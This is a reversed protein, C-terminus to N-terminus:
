QAVMALQHYQLALHLNPKADRAKICLGEIQSRIRIWQLRKVLQKKDSTTQVCLIGIKDLEGVIERLQKATEYIPADNPSTPAPNDISASTPITRPHDVLSGTITIQQRSDDFDNQIGKVERLFSLTKFAVDALAISSAVARLVEM